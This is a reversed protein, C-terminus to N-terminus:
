GNRLAMREQAGFSLLAAGIGITMTLHVAERGSIPEFMTAFYLGACTLMAAIFGVSLAKQRHERTSEDDVLARVQPSQFWGGGTMLLALLAIAMVLWASIHVADVTRVDGWTDFKAAKGFYIAQTAIFIIALVTVM